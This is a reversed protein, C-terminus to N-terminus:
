KGDKNSFLPYFKIQNEYIFEYIDLITKIARDSFVSHPNQSSIFLKWISLTRMKGWFHPLPSNHTQKLKKALVVKLRLNKRYTIYLCSLNLPAWLKLIVLNCMAAIAKCICFLKHKYEICLIRHVLKQTYYEICQM